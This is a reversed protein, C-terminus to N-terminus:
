FDEDNVENDTDAENEDMESAVSFGEEDEFGYSGADRSAGGSVLEIIQCANLRLTVGCNKGQFYASPTFNIIMTTGSWISMGDPLPKLKADFLPPPALEVREGKKNIYGTKAKFKFVIYGTEDGNDDIDPSFGFSEPRKKAKKPDDLTARFEEYTDKIRKVLAKVKPDDEPLLLQVAYEGEENFRTDPTTLWPYRATGLPTNLKIQKQKNNNAAM